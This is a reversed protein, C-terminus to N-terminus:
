RRALGARLRGFWGRQDAGEATEAPAASEDASASEAQPPEFTEELASTPHRLTAEEELERVLATEVEPTPEAPGNRRWFRM